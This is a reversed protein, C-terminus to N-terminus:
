VKGASLKAVLDDLAAQTGPTAAVSAKAEKIVAPDNAAVVSSTAAAAIVKANVNNPDVVTNYVSSGVTLVLGALATAVLGAITADDAKSFFTAHAGLWDYLHSLVWGGTAISAANIGATVRARVLGSSIFTKLIGDLM